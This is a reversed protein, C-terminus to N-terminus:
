MEFPAIMEPLWMNIGVKGLWEMAVTPGYFVQGFSTPCYMASNFARAYTWNQCNREFNDSDATGCLGANIHTSQVIVDWVLADQRPGPQLAQRWHLDPRGPHCQKSCASQSSSSRM